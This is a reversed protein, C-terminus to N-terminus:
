QVERTFFVFHQDPQINAGAPIWMQSPDPTEKWSRVLELRVVGERVSPPLQRLLYEAFAAWAGSNQDLRLGDYFKTHRVLFFKEPLSLERWVPSSWELSTGDGIFRASVTVNISRPDPAFLRWDGQWLGIRDLFPDMAEKLRAHTASTIPTADILGLGVFCVILVNAGNKQRTTV